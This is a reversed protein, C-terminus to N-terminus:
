KKLIWESCNTTPFIRFRRDALHHKFLGIEDDVENTWITEQEEGKWLEQYSFCNVYELKKLTCEVSNREDYGGNNLKYHGCTLCSKTEPNRFCIKEHDETLKFSSARRGCRHKCYYKKVLIPM